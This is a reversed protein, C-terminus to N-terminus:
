SRTSRPNAGDRVLAFAKIRAPSTTTSSRRMSLGPVATEDSQGFHAELGPRRQAVDRASAELELRRELMELEIDGPQDAGIEPGRGAAEGVAQQLAARQSHMGAVHTVPLEVDLHCGVGRTTTWSWPMLTRATVRASRPSDTVRQVM